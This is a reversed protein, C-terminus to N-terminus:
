NMNFKFKKDMKTDWKTQETVKIMETPRRRLNKVPEKKLMFMAKVKKM